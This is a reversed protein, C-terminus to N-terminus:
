SHRTEMKVTQILESENGKGTCEVGSMLGFLKKADSAGDCCAVIHYRHAHGLSTM